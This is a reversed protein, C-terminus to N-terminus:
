TPQRELIKFAIDGTGGAVDIVNVTGVGTIRGNELNRKPKLVGIDSVFYDKWCRHIGVSMLDNMVDYSSAVNSFVSNVLSQRDEKDVSRFGFSTKNNNNTTHGGATGTTTSTTGSSGSPGRNSCGRSLRLLPRFISTSSNRLFM